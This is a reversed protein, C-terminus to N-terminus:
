CKLQRYTVLRVKKLAGDLRIIDFCATDLMFYLFVKLHSALKSKGKGEGGGLNVGEPSGGVQETLGIVIRLNECRHFHGPGCTKASTKWRNRVFM